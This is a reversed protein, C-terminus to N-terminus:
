SAMPRFRVVLLGTALAAVGYGVAWLRSHTDIGAGGLFPAAAGALLQLPPLLVNVVRGFWSEGAPFWSRLLWALSWVVGLAIWDYETIASLLFGVGGFLLFYLLVFHLSGWIPIAGFIARFAVLVLLTAALTGFLSVLFAQAYYRPASIPKSFLLRYYRHKRDGSVIGNVAILVATPAFLELFVMAIALARVGGGGLDIGASGVVGQGALLLLLAGVLLLPIGRERVYDTTQFLAYRALRGSM